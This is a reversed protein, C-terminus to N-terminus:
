LLGEGLRTVAVWFNYIAFTAMCTNNGIPKQPDVVSFDFRRFLEVFVKNLDMLAVNRGLCQYKGFAFIIELTKEQERIKELPSDLWREPGFVDADEGFVAGGSAPVEKRAMMAAPLTEEVTKIYDYADSDTALYGFAKGYALNTIVDLTFYQAKRGFDLPKFESGATVYKDIPGVFVAINQDILRELNEVEKGSYGAVM